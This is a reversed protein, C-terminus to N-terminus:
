KGAAAKVKNYIAVLRDQASNVAGADLRQVEEPSFYIIEPLELKDGLADKTGIVATNYGHWDIEKASVDPDLMFNIFAHAAEPNKASKLIAYNDVWLETIPAGLVWKFRDKEMIVTRADGNWMQSLVFSGGVLKEVPYSDFARIHPALETLLGKECADLDEKKETTWPIGERWFWMGTVDGPAALVSVKGSVGRMAAARFFGAWDTLEEKIVKSDYVFGTSGWDKVASYKNGPDWPQDLFEPELNAFNPIKAKDLEMLLGKSVIQPIFVGTPV